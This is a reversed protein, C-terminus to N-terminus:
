EVDLIDSFAPCITNYCVVPILVLNINELHTFCTSITWTYLRSCWVNFNCCECMLIEFYPIFIDFYPFISMSMKLWWSIIDMKWVTYSTPWFIHQPVTSYFNLEAWPFCYNERFQFKSFFIKDDIEDVIGVCIIDDLFKSNLFFFKGGRVSTFKRMM